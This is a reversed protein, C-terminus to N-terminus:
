GAEAIQLWVKGGRAPREAAAAAEAVRDLPFGEGVDSTIVGKGLLGVASRVASVKAPLSAEGMWRGLWFGRVTLGRFLAARADLRLPEGSLTGYCALTGGDALCGAAAGGTAGAVCDLAHRVPEGGTAERVRDALAAPDEGDQFVVVTKGVFRPEAAMLEEAQEARRVVNVTRFGRHEGLATVMRGLSSGAATQLVWAGRPVALVKATLVHATVPNVFGMAAQPVPVSAPVPVCRVAPAVVEEAWTGGDAKLVIVRRGALLRGALGGGTVVGVGEYGPTAPPDPRVEYRGRVTMLDSPNVAAALMRVRVGGGAPAPVDRCALVEGPEGFRDFVAARM